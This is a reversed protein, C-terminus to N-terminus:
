GTRSAFEGLPPRGRGPWPARHVATDGVLQAFIGGVRRGDGSELEADCVGMGRQSPFISAPVRGAGGVSFDGGRGHCPGHQFAPLM